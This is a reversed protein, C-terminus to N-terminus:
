PTIFVFSPCSIFPLIEFTFFPKTLSVNGNLVLTSDILTFHFSDREKRLSAKPLFHHTFLRFNISKMWLKKVTSMVSEPKKKRLTVKEREGIVFQYDQGGPFSFVKLNRNKQM